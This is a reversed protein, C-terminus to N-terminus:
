LRKDSFEIIYIYNILSEFAKNFDFNNEKLSKLLLDDTYENISLGFVERFQTLKDINEKKKDKFHNCRFSSIKTVKAINEKLKAKIIPKIEARKNAGTKKVIKSINM